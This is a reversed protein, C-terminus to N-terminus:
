HAAPPPCAVCAPAPHPKQLQHFHLPALLALVYLVLTALAARTWRAHATKPHRGLLHFLPAPWGKVVLLMLLLALTMGSLAAALSYGHAALTFEGFIHAMELIYVLVIFLELNGLRGENEELDHQAKGIATQAAHVAALTATQQHSELAASADRLPQQLAQLTPALRFARRLCAYYLNHAERRNVLELNAQVAFLNVEGSLAALAAPAPAGSRLLEAAARQYGQLAQAQFYAALSTAFYKVLVRAARGRDFDNTDGPFQRAVFHVMGMPTGAALHRNTLCITELSRADHVTPPHAGEELQAMARLAPLFAPDALDAKPAFELVSYISFQGQTGALQPAIPALLADFLEPLTFPSNATAARELPPRTETSCSRVWDDEAHARKLEDPAPLTLAPSDPKARWLMPTRRKLHSLNYAFDLTDAWPQPQAPLDRILTLSLIGCGFPNLFIEAHHKRDVFFAAVAPPTSRKGDKRPELAKKRESIWAEGKDGNLFLEYLAGPTNSTHRENATDFTARHQFYYPAPQDRLAGFVFDSAAETMEKRLEENLEPQHVWLGKQTLAAAIHPLEARPVRFPYLLRLRHSLLQAPPPAAFAPDPPMHTSYCERRNVPGGACVAQHPELRNVVLEAAVQVIRRGRM